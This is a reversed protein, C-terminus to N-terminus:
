SVSSKLRKGLETMRRKCEDRATLYGATTPKGTKVYDLVVSEADMFGACGEALCYRLTEVEVGQAQRRISTNLSCHPLM